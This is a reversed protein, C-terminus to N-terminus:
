NNGIASIVNTMGAFVPIWNKSPIYLIYHASNDCKVLIHNIHNGCALYDFSGGAYDFFQHFVADVGACCFYGDGDFISAFGDADTARQPFTPAVIRSLIKPVLDGGKRPEAALDKASLPSCVCALFLTVTRLAFSANRLVTKRLITRNMPRTTGKQSIEKVSIEM